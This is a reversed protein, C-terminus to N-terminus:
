ATIYKAISNILFKSEKAYDMPIVKVVSLKVKNEGEYESQTARVRLNYSKFLAKQFVDEYQSEGQPRSLM